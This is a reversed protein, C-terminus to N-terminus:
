YLDGAKSGLNLPWLAPEWQSQGPPDVGQPTLALAPPVTVSGVRSVWPCWGQKWKRSSSMRGVPQLSPALVQSGASLKSMVPGWVQLETGCGPPQGSAWGRWAQSWWPLQSGPARVEPSGMAPVWLHGLATGLIECSSNQLETKMRVWSMGESGLPPLSDVAGERQNFTLGTLFSVQPWEDTLGCFRQSHGTLGCCLDAQQGSASLPCPRPTPMPPAVADM